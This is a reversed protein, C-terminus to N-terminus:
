QEIDAWQLDRNLLDYLANNSRRFYAKLYERVSPHMTKGHYETKMGPPLAIHKYLDPDAGIFSCVERMVSETNKTFENFDIFMMDDPAFEQLFPRIRDAYCGSMLLSHLRTYFLQPMNHPLPDMPQLDKLEKWLEIEDEAEQFRSDNPTIPDALSWTLLVGMNVLMTEASFMVPVPDRLMFILKANPTIAKIRRATYPLCATVPCADFCMWQM